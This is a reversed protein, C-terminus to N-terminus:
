PQGFVRDGYKCSGRIRHAPRLAVGNQFSRHSAPLIARSTIACYQRSNQCSNPSSMVTAM